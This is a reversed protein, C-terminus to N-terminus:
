WGYSHPYTYSHEIEPAWFLFIGEKVSITEIFYKHKKIRAKKESLFLNKEKYVMRFYPFCADDLTKIMYIVMLM